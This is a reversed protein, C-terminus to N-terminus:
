PVLQIIMVARNFTLVVSVMALARRVTIATVSYEPLNELINEQIGKADHAYIMAVVDGMLVYFGCVVAMSYCVAKPFKSKDAMSEEVPFAFTCLGFCFIGIGTFTTVATTSQPFLTLSVESNPLSTYNDDLAAYLGFAVLVAISIFLCVLGVLSTASLFSLNKACSFPLVILGSICIFSALQAAESYESFVNHPIDKLFEAFAIQYSTCVGLLTIVISCDTIIVGPWGLASFAIRSYSSSVGKPYIFDDCANKCSIMMFCSIINWGSFCVIGIPSFLLGGNMFAFPLALIGNGISLQLIL